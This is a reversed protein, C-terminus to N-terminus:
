ALAHFNRIRSRSALNVLANSSTQREVPALDDECRHLRGVGVGDGFPPDTGHTSLTKVLQEDDAAPLKDADQPGIDLVVIPVARVAAKTM